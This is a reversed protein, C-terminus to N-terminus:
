CGVLVAVHKYYIVTIHKSSDYRIIHPHSMGDLIVLIRHKYTDYLSM